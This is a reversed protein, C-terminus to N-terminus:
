CRSAARNLPRVLLVMALFAAFFAALFAALFFVLVLAAFLLLVAGDPAITYCHSKKSWAPRRWVGPVRTTGREGSQEGRCLDPM